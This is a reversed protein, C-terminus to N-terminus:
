IRSLFEILDKTSFVKVKSQQKLKKDNSWIPVNMKLALSFYQIDNVDPSIRKGEEIYEKFEELPVFRVLAKILEITLSFQLENLGFKEKIEEKHEEIEELLFLPSFIEVDGSLIIERAKSKPNFFSFIINADAVLLM